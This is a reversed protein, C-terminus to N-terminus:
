ATTYFWEDFSSKTIKLGKKSNITKFNGSNMIERAKDEGVGFISQINKDSYTLGYKRDRKTRSHNTEYFKM